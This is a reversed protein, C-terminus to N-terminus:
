LAARQAMRLMEDLMKKLEPCAGYAAHPELRRFLSVGDVVERYSRQAKRIYLRKLLKKPPEGFDIDEPSKGKTAKSLADKIESPFLDPKSLLWAEVEHVAFFMKFRSPRDVRKELENVAWQLRESSSILHSPYFSPGYLDLLGIVAIIESREPGDLYMQAKKCMEAVMRDCGRFCVPKIGVPYPLQTDLWRKLFEPVVRHETPGEVFLVFRM